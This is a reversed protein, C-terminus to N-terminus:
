HQAREIFLALTSFTVLAFEAMVQRHLSFALFSADVHIFSIFIQLFTLTYQLHSPYLLVVHKNISRQM